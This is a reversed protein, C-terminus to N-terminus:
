ESADDKVGDVTVHYGVSNESVCFMWYDFPHGNAINKVTQGSCELLFIITKLPPISYLL